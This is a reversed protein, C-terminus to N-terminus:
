ENIILQIGTNITKFDEHIAALYSKGCETICYYTRIRNGETIKTEFEELYGLKKLHYIAPYLNAVIYLGNSRNEFSRIMQYVYMPGESLLQLTALDVTAKTFNETMGEPSDSISSSKKL